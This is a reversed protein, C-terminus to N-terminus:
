PPGSAVSKVGCSWTRYRLPSRRGDRSFTNSQDEAYRLAVTPPRGVFFMPRPSSHSLRHRGSPDDPCSPSPPRPRWSPTSRPQTYRRLCSVLAGNALTADVYLKLAILHRCPGQRLGARHAHACGCSAKTYAGDADFLAECAETRGQVGAVRAAFRARGSALVERRELTVAGRTFAQRGHRLEERPPGLLSESLAVPLVERLRYVGRAPDFIIQGQTALEHLAGLLVQRPAEALAALQEVSALHSAKLHALVRSAVRPAAGELTVAGALLELSVGKTWDNTTWGSLGLVFRMEGLHVTWFSPLGTGLLRVTVREALPLLRALVSLRRRGWVKITEAREGAYRAGHSEVVQNWPEIVVQARQGPELVFRLARPGAKERHRKLFALLSYVADVSLEVERSALGVASSIQGFGKLWGPPLDIKEERVLGAGETSVGFGAPDVLLRTQRYSRLAQFADFLQLSYDVNTTGLKAEGQGEFADRDVYLCAYSSEDKAFCEFFVTDPAVTVVPDCPVLARFLAPDNAALEAAWSRRARWYREHERRFDAQLTAPPVEARLKALAERKAGDVVVARLAAEEEAQAQQFARWATRDKPRRRHDGVVVEHLASMAERYRLPAKLAQDFHVAPRALNPELRMLAGGQVAELGSRQLYRLDFIM